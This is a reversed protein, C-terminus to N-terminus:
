YWNRKPSSGLAMESDLSPELQDYDQSAPGTSMSCAYYTSHHGDSTSSVIGYNHIIEHSIIGGVDTTNDNIIAGPHQGGQGPKNACGGVANGNSYMQSPQDTLAVLIDAGQYQQGPYWGTDAKADGLLVWCDTVGSASNWASSTYKQNFKINYNTRFLNSEKTTIKSWAVSTWSAQYTNRFEDDGAVYMDLTKTTQSNIQLNINSTSTTIQSSYHARSYQYKSADVTYTYGSPATTSWNGYADTTVTKWFSYTLTTKYGEIHITAGSVSTNISTTVRGSVTITHTAEAQPLVINGGVYSTAAM